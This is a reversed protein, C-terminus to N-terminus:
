GRDPIGGHETRDFVQTDQPTLSARVVIMVHELGVTVGKSLALRKATRLSKEMRSERPEVLALRSCACSLQADSLSNALEPLEDAFYQRWLSVQEPEGGDLAAPECNIM